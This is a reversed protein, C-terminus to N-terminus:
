RRILLDPAVSVDQRAPVAPPTQREPVAGETADDAGPSRSELKGECSM